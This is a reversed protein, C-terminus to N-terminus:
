SNEILVTRKVIRSRQFANLVFFLVLKEAQEKSIVATKGM